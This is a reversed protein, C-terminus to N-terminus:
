YASELLGLIQAAGSRVVKGGVIMQFDGKFVAIDISIERVQGYDDRVRKKYSGQNKIRELLFRYDTGEHEGVGPVTFWLRNKVFSVDKIRNEGRNSRQTVGSGNFNSVRIFPSGEASFEVIVGNQDIEIANEDGLEAAILEKAEKVKSGDEDMSSQFDAIENDLQVRQDQNQRCKQSVSFLDYGPQGPEVEPVLVWRDESFVVEDLTYLEDETLDILFKEDVCKLDLFQNWLTTIAIRKALVNVINAENMDRSAQNIKGVKIEYEKESWGVPWLFASVIQSMLRGHMVNFGFTAVDTDTNPPHNPVTGRQVSCGSILVSAAVVSVFVTVFTKKM